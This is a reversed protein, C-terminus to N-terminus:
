GLIHLFMSLDYVHRYVGSSGPVVVGLVRMDSQDVVALPNNLPPYKAVVSEELIDRGYLFNKVGKEGVVLAARLGKVSYVKEYVPISPYIRYDVIVGVWMGSYLLTVREERGAAEHVICYEDFCTVYLDGRIIESPEVGLVIKLYEELKGRLSRSLKGFRFEVRKKETV